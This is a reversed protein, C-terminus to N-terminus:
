VRKILIKSYNDWFVYRNVGKFSSCYWRYIFLVKRVVYEYLCLKFLNVYVVGIVLEYFIIFGGKVVMFVIGNVYYVELKCSM